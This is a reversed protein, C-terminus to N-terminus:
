MLLLKSVYCYILVGLVDMLTALFPGASFAPDIGLRRLIFPICSGLSVSVLVILALSSSVVISQLVDTTAYYARGFAVIGLIFALMGAMLLERRLFKFINAQHIDGSALGQIVVASTQNSTNGGASVLMTLFYFLSGIQLSDEHAHMITTALSEALLLVILIRSREYLMRFFSSEFYPYKLPTLAAMKQVDESAEEVLVDVLTEAPIIGLFHNNDDIVPVTMLGYHVMQKAITEQDEHANAILENKRLFSAIRSEPAHLVLDELNIYGVLRHQGDTVYIQQYIERRPRLRQLLKISKEVTFDQMLTLVETDMIGGASEPHFQLLSLVKERARKNLLSLYYKLEEDSLFDFIDSLEDPHLMNLADAKDTEDMFSLARVKMTDSLDHFVHGRLEDPLQLFLREFWHAELSAFFEAIDAPHVTIFREWIAKAKVSEQLAVAEINNQVEDLVQKTDM